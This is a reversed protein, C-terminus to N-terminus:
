ITVSFGTKELIVQNETIEDSVEGIIQRIGSDVQGLAQGIDTTAQDVCGCVTSSISNIKSDMQVLRDIVGSLDCTVTLGDISDLLTLENCDDLTNPYAM